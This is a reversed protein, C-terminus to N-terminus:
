IFLSFLIITLAFLKIYSAKCDVSYVKLQMGRNKFYNEEYLKITGPIDMIADRPLGLCGEGVRGERMGRVYCCKDYYTDGNSLDRDVCDSVGKVNADNSFQSPCSEQDDRSEVNKAGEFQYYALCLIVLFLFIKNM